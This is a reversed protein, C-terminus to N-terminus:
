GLLPSPNITSGDDIALVELDKLTQRLVRRIAAQLFELQEFTPIIVSIPPM